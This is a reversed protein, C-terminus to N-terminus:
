FLVASLVVKWHCDHCFRPKAVACSAHAGRLAPVQAQEAAHLQACNCPALLCASPPSRMISPSHHPRHRRSVQSDRHIAEAVAAQLATGLLDLFKLRSAGLIEQLPAVHYGCQGARARTGLFRSAPDIGM